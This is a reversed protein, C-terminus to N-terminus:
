REQGFDQSNRINRVFEKHSIGHKVIGPDIICLDQYEKNLGAKRIRAALSVQSLGAILAGCRSLTERDRLVELGLMYHHNERSDESFAVSTDADSRFTDKYYSLKGGFCREFEKLAGTDDTALLLSICTGMMGRIELELM